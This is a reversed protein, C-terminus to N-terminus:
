SHGQNIPPREFSFINEKTTPRINNSVTAALKATTALTLNDAVPTWSSLIRVASTAFCKAGFASHHLFYPCPPVLIPSCSHRSFISLTASSSTERMAFPFIQFLIQDPSFFPCGRTGKKNGLTYEYRVQGAM